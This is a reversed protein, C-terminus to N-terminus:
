EREAIFGNFLKLIGTLLYSAFNRKKGNGM